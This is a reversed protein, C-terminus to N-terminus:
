IDSVENNAAKLRLRSILNNQEEESLMENGEPRTNCLYAYVTEDDFDDLSNIVLTEILKKVSIGTAAARIALRHCVDNPLEILKKKRNCNNITLARM